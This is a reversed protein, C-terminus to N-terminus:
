HRKQFRGFLIRGVDSWGANLPLVYANKTKEMVAVDVSVNPCAAFSDRDLRLFDLDFLNNELSAYCNEVLDKSFQNLEKLILSAKFLFIGSNWTFRNDKFFIEANSKQPKEIFRVIKSGEIKNVDLAEKSKIYGYGVEPSTPVVGFTVLREKESYYLAKEIVESFKDENEIQHDSSLILM